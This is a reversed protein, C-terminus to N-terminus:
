LQATEKRIRSLSSDTIGLYSAIYKLPANKLVLPKEKLLKQYRETASDTIMSVARRKSEFLSQAMWARGWESFGSISHFLKQFDDYDIKWCVCDILAKINEQTPKRQFLSSVEIVIENAVFFDTTINNGNFDRVFSRMLGSQLIFYSNATDGEKLMMEGKEFTSKTHAGFIIKLEDNNLLPHQYVNKLLKECM